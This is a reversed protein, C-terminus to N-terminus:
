LIFRYDGARQTHCPADVAPGPSTRREGHGSRGETQEVDIVHNTEIHKLAGPFCPCKVNEYRSQQDEPQDPRAKQLMAEAQELRGAQYFSEALMRYTRDPQGLLIKELTPNDALRQSDELVTQVHSFYEASRAYDELLFCLRGMELYVITMALDAPEAQQDDAIQQSKEFLELAREWQQQQSLRLALQRLLAYETHTLHVVAGRVQVAHRAFDIELEGCRLTAATPETSRESRRLVAKIRAVLEKASFPKTLYDDAGVDFGYLMDAEQAKATLMIVPAESFERIRRCVEYGDPGEPLLIDLLVLDPQELAVMEIGSKGSAAAIVQYGMAELVETVLRVVRPEDDVVLIKEDM